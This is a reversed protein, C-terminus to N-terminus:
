VTSIPWGDAGIMPKSGGREESQKVSNHCSWCLSQWNAEEWFLAQDGKHPVIHDVVKAEVLEGRKEHLACLPHKAIYLARCRDWRSTYGRQRASGRRADHRKDRHRKSM